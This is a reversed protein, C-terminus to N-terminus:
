AEGVVRELVYAVAKEMNKEASEASKKMRANAAALIDSAQEGGQAAEVLGQAEAQALARGGEILERAKTEAQLPAQEAEHKARELLDLAQQEVDLVERIRKENV